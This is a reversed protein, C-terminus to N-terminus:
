GACCAVAVQWGACGSAKAALCGAKGDLWRLWRLWRAFLVALWFAALWRLM